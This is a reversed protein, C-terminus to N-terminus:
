FYSVGLVRTAESSAVTRSMPVGPFAHPTNSGLSSAQAMDRGGGRRARQVPV